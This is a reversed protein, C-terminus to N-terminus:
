EKDKGLREAGLEEALAALKAVANIEAMAKGKLAADVL